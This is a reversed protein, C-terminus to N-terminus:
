NFITQKIYAKKNGKILMFDGLDFCFSHLNNYESAIHRPQNNNEVTRCIAM